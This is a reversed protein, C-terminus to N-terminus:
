YNAIGTLKKLEKCVFYWCGLFVWDLCLGGTVAKCPGSYYKDSKACGMGDNVDDATSLCSCLSSLDEWRLLLTFDALFTPRSSSNLGHMAGDHCSAGFWSVASGWVLVGHDLSM